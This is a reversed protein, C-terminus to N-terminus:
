TRSAATAATATSRRAAGARLLTPHCYVRIGRAPRRLLPGARAGLRTYNVALSTSGATTTTTSSAPGSWGSTARSARRPRWTRSAAPRTAFCSSASSAAWSSTPRRRQRLRRGGGGHRLGRRAPGAAETVDRSACAASTATCAIRTARRARSAPGPREAGNTFFVDLRGDGDYDFVALGGPMTEILQKSPTPSNEHVFELGAERAVDRFALAPPGPPQPRGAAALAVLVLASAAALGLRRYAPARGRRVYCPARVRPLDRCVRVRARLEASPLRRRESLPRLM